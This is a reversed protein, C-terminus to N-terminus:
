QKVTKLFFSNPHSQEQTQAPDLWQETEPSFTNSLLSLFTISVSSLPLLTKKKKKQAM